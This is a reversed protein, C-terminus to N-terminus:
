KRAFEINRDNKSISKKSDLPLIVEEAQDVFENSNDMSREAFLTIVFSLVAALLIAKFINYM